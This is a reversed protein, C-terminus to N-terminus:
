GKIGYLAFQSYQAYTGTDPTFRITTVKEPTKFWLGSNMSIFGNSNTDFGGLGRLTKNKTTSTYDLIDIVLSNLIDATSTSDTFGMSSTSTSGASYATSGTTYIYHYAYNSATDSNLRILQYNNASGRISCRIQLHKYTDPISAFEIFSAGASGVNAMAIPFMAGSDPVTLRGSIQSAFVGTLLPTM